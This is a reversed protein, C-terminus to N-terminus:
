EVLTELNDVVAKMQTYMEQDAPTPLQGTERLSDEVIKTAAALPKLSLNAAAGKISHVLRLAEEQEGNTVLTTLQQEVDQYDGAFKGLLMKLLDKNGVLRGLVEELDIIVTKEGSKTSTTEVTKNQDTGTIDAQPELSLNQKVTASIKAQELAEPLDAPELKVEPESLQDLELEQYSDSNFESFTLAQNSAGSAKNDVDNGGFNNDDVNNDDVYNDGLWRCLVTKLQEADIPKTLHDNMGAVLSKEKDGQMAHATMAIVPLHKLHPQRRIQKTATLGDMVPMQIDMLVLDFTQTELKDLAKQGNDALEVDLGIHLLTESAVQQNIANDEVVLIRKGEISALTARNQQQRPSVTQPRETCEGLADQLSSLNFPKSLVLSVLNQYEAYEEHQLEYGTMIVIKPPASIQEAQILMQLRTLVDAGSFNPMRWDLLLTDYPKGQADQSMIAAICELGSSVIDSDINIESLMTQYIDLANHNDDTVLVKCCYPSTESGQQTRETLQLPLRVIFCSGEGQKSDAFIEGKMLEVLRKCITLGLGTGGFKRTTSGDAQTFADFLNNLKDSSIGIGSDRVSLEVTLQNQESAVVQCRISVEGTETFKIANSLLNILIQNIRLPDGILQSPLASDIQCNLSLSKNQAPLQNLEIVRELTNHLSFPIYEIDLKGAEIKSFDLIDNIIGLLSRASFEVKQIYDQQKHNLETKLVLQTLGIIANMPTRIEHSMNALFESKAQNALEADSLAHEAQSKANRLIREAAKAQSIDHGEALLYIINGQENRIPSISFEFHAQNDKPDVLSVELQATQDTMAIGIGDKLLEKCKQSHRLWSLQWIAQNTAEFATDGLYNAATQNFAKVEGRSNLLLMIQNTANFIAKQIQESERIDQNLSRLERTREEIKDELQSNFQLLKNSLDVQSTIESFISCISYIAGNTDRLPFKVMNFTRIKNDSSPLNIDALLARGSQLVKDDQQALPQSIDEEVLEEIQSGILQEERDFDLISLASPNALTYKGSLDKITIAIPTNELISNFTQERDALQRRVRIFFFSLGVILLSSIVFQSFSVLKNTDTLKYAETVDIETTVGINFEDLWRWTGIVPVGRYDRYGELNYDNQGRTVSAAMKTLPFLSVNENETVPKSTLDRGPDRITINLVESEGEVLLKTQLLGERFRSKTILEANSNIAYTEGSLGLRGLKLIQYFSKPEITFIINVSNGRDLDLRSAALLVLNSSFVSDVAGLQIPATLWSGYHRSRELLKLMQFHQLQKGNFDIDSSAIIQNSNNVVLYDKFGKGIMLPLLARTLNLHHSRDAQETELLANMSKYVAPNHALSTAQSIKEFRYSSLAEVTVDLVTELSSHMSKIHGHQLTLNQWYTSAAAFAIILVTILVIHSNRSTM